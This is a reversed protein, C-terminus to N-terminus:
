LYVLLRSSSNVILRSFADVPEQHQPALYRAYISFVLKESVLVSKVELKFQYGLAEIKRGHIIHWIIQPDIEEVRKGRISKLMEKSQKTIELRLDEEDAFNRQTLELEIEIEKVILWRKAESVKDELAKIQNEREELQAKLNSKESLIKEIQYGIAINTFIAGLIIGISFLAVKKAFSEGPFWFFLKM